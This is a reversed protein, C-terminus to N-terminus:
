QEVQGGTTGFYSVAECIAARVSFGLLDAFGEPGAGM